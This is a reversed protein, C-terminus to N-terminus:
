GLILLALYPVLNFVIFFLKYLGMFAYIAVNFSGRSLSFWRSHIGFVFDPISLVMVVLFTYMAGNIITCWLFFSTLTQINM